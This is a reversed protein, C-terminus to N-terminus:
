ASELYERMLQEFNEKNFDFQRPKGRGEREAFFWGPDEDQGVIMIERMGFKLDVRGKGSIINLGKPVLHVKEGSFFTITLVPAHYTGLLQETITHDSTSISIYGKVELPSIWKKIIDFLGKTKKLWQNREADWNKGQEEMQKKKKDLIEELHTSM